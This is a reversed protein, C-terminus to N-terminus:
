SSVLEGQERFQMRHLRAYVGNKAQLEAHTGVEVIRGREMVVIRDANEITSLRHAIVLTTRGEMLTELAAQVHRESETDLASTAEDLILIPADKLLARAIALRQRQGGSLKVGREGVHADYGSRGAVLKAHLVENTDYNDYRVKIGTEKEFNKITDEAIYDSWNYINLVKPETNQALAAGILSFSAALAAILQITTRKM